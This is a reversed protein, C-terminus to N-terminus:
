ETAPLFGPSLTTFCHTSECWLVPLFLACTLTPSKPVPCREILTHELKMESWTYRSCGQGGGCAKYSESFFTDRTTRLGPQGNFDGPLKLVIRM